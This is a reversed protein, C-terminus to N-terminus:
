QSLVRWDLRSAQECLLRPRRRDAYVARFVRRDALRIWSAGPGTASPLFRPFRTADELAANFMTQHVAYRTM